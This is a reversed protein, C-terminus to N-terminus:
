TAVTQQAGPSVVFSTSLPGTFACIIVCIRRARWSFSVGTNRLPSRSESLYSNVFAFQVIPLVFELMRAQSSSVWSFARTAMRLRPAGFCSALEMDSVRINFYVIM